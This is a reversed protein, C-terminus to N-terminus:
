ATNLNKIPLMVHLSGKSAKSVNHVVDCPSLMGLVEKFHDFFRICTDFRKIHITNRSAFSFDTGLIEPSICTIVVIMKIMIIITYSNKNQKCNNYLFQFYKM